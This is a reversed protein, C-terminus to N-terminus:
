EDLPFEDEEFPLEEDEDFRFLDFSALDETFDLNDLADEIWRAMKEDAGELLTELYLRVNQGGIQSLAWIASKYVEEEPEGRLMQILMPRAERLSLEGAAQVASRRVATHEHALMPLVYDQWTEPNASRGMAMLASAIWEPDEQEYARRILGEVEPRSSYGLSTLAIQRVRAEADHEAAYILAEEIRHLLPAALKDVEGEYVFAGLLGAAEARVDGDGDHMLMELLQPVLHADLSEQLLRLARSRVGADADTLLARGIGEFSVLTDQDFLARLADLFAYKRIQPIQPWVELLRRVQQSSLDSFERLWVQSLPREAGALLMLAKDFTSFSM